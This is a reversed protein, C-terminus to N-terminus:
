RSATQDWAGAPVQKDLRAFQRQRLQFDMGDGNQADYSNPTQFWSRSYNFNLSLTDANSPKFDVRDFINEENGRDHM